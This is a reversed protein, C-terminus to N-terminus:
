SNLKNSGMGSKKILTHCIIKYYIYKAGSLHLSLSFKSSHRLGEIHVAVITCPSVKLKTPLIYPPLFVGWSMKTM